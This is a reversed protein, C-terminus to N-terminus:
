HSFLRSFLALSIMITTTVLLISTMFGFEPMPHAFDIIYLGSKWSDDYAGHLFFILRNGDPSLVPPSPRNDSYPIISEHLTGEANMVDIGGGPAYRCGFTQYLILEGNPSIRPSYNVCDGAFEPILTQKGTEIDILLLHNNRRYIDSTPESHMMVAKKGDDSVDPFRHGLNNGTLLKKQKHGDMDALWLEQNEQTSDGTGYVNEVLLLNGDPMWTAALIQRSEHSPESYYCVYCEHLNDTINTLVSNKIDHKFVEDTQNGDIYALARFLLQGDSYSIRAPTFNDFIVTKNNPQLQYTTNASLLDTRKGTHLDLAQLYYESGGIIFSGDHSWDMPEFDTANSIRTITYNSAFIGKDIPLALATSNQGVIYSFLVFSFIFSFSLMYCHMSICERM